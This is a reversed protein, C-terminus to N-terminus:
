RTGELGTSPAAAQLDLLANLWAVEAARQDKQAQQVAIRASQVDLPAALGNKARAEVVTLHTQATQLALATNELQRQAVKQATYKQQIDLKATKRTTDLAQQASKLALEQSQISADLSGDVIPLNASLSVKYNTAANGSSQLNYSGSTSLVGTQLNLGVDAGFGGSSVGLSVSANIKWRDERAQDLAEQAAEVKLMAKQVDSRTAMGQTQWLDLVQDSPKLPVDATYEGEPIPMGLTNSLSIRAVELSNQAKLTTLQANAAKQQAQLLAEQNATGQNRQQVVVNLQDEALTQNQQALQLDMEALQISYYGSLVKSKLTNQADRIDLLASKLNRQATKLADFASGWPLVPLSASLNLSGTQQTSSFDTTSFSASGGGSVKLGLAAQAANWNAQAQQEQWLIGQAAPSAPLLDLVKEPPISTALGSSGLALLLTLSRTVRM